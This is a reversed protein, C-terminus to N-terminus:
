QQCGPAWITSIPLQLIKFPTSILLWHDWDTRCWQYCEQYCKNSRAFYVLLRAMCWICTHITRFARARCWLRLRSWKCCVQIYCIEHYLLSGNGMDRNSYLVSRKTAFRKKFPRVMVSHVWVTTHWVGTAVHQKFPPLANRNDRVKAIFFSNQQVIPNTIDLTLLVQTHCKFSSYQLTLSRM